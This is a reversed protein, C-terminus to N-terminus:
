PAPEATVVCARCQVCTARRLVAHRTDEGERALIAARCPLDIAASAKAVHLPWRLPLDSLRGASFGPLEARRALEAQNEVHPTSGEFEEIPFFVGGDGARAEPLTSEV